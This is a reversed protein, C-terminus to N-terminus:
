RWYPGAVEIEDRTEVARVLAAAITAADPDVPEFGHDRIIEGAAVFDQLEGLHDQIAKFRKTMLSRTDKRDAYLPATLETLYRLKKAAIRVRHRGRSDIHELDRWQATIRWWWTDLEHGVAYTAKERAGVSLRWEGHSAARELEDLRRRFKRSALRDDSEHAAEVRRGALSERLAEQQRPVVPAAGDDISMILVDLDRVEGFPSALTRLRDNARAITRDARALPYMFSTFARTKRISIRLKHLAEVDHTSNFWEANERVLRVLDSLVGGLFEGATTNRLDSELDSEHGSEREGVAGSAEAADGGTPTPTRDPFLPGAQGHRPTGDAPVGIRARHADQAEPHRNM